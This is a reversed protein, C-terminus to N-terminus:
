AARAVAGSTLFRSTLPHALLAGVMLWAAFVVVTLAGPSWPGMTLWLLMLAGLGAAVLRAWSRGRSVQFACVIEGVGIALALLGAVLAPGVGGRALGLSVSGIAGVSHIAALFLLLAAVLSVTLPRSAGGEASQAQRIEPWPPVGGWAAAGAELDEVAAWADVEEIPPLEVEDPFVGGPRTVSKESHWFM